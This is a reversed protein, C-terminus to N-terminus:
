SHSPSDHSPEFRKLLLQNRYFLLIASDSFYCINRCRCDTKFRQIISQEDIYRDIENSLTCRIHDVENRELSFDIVWTRTFISLWFNIFYKSHWVRSISMSTTEYRKDERTKSKIPNERHHQLWLPGQFLNKNSKDVELTCICDVNSM